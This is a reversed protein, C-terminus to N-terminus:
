YLQWFLSGILALATVVTPVMYDRPAFLRHWERIAAACGLSVFVVFWIGGYITAAVAVVALTTGFLLRLAWETGLPMPRRFGGATVSNAGSSGTHVVPPSSM